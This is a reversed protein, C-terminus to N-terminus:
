LAIEDFRKFDYKAKKGLIDWYLFPHMGSGPRRTGINEETFCDGAKISNLAVISQRIANKNKKEQLTPMKVGNGLAREINRIGLVLSRLEDPNISAKHDPGELNKDITFHKEIISAGLAVSAMPVSIGDSHDSFGTQLGFSSTLTQICRLNIDEFPAPYETTCHLLSVNEKLLAQGDESIYASVFAEPSPQEDAKSLLGFALVGLANEIEALTAMGTSLIMKKKYRSHGLLYPANVIEGSPIKLIDQGLQNVLFNVSSLDFATSMFKIDKKKSYELLRAFCDQDLELKKLMDVQSNSSTDNKAQYNAKEARNTVLEDAKFTQFKIYDAGSGAAIDILERALVEDGNHNVGAEAIILVKSM